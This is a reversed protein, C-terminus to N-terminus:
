REWCQQIISLAFISFIMVLFQVIFLAGVIVVYKVTIAVPYLFAIGLPLLMIDVVVLLLYLKRTKLKTVLFGVTLGGLM